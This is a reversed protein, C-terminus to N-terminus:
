LAFASGRDGSDSHTGNLEAGSSLPRVRPRAVRPRTVPPRAVEPGGARGTSALIDREGSRVDELEFGTRAGTQNRLERTVIGGVTGSVQEFLTLCLTTKGSEPRGTVAIKM